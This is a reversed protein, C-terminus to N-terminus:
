FVVTCVKVDVEVVPFMTPARAAKPEPRANEIKKM